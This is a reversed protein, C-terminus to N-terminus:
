GVIFDLLIIIASSDSLPPSTPQITEKKDKTKDFLYELRGREDGKSPFRYKSGKTDGQSSDLVFNWTQASSQLVHFIPSCLRMKRSTTYKFPFHYSRLINLNFQHVLRPLDLRLADSIRSFSSFDSRDPSPQFSAWVKHVFWETWSNYDITSLSYQKYSM